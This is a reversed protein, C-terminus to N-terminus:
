RSGFIGDNYCLIILLSLVIIIFHNTVTKIGSKRTKMGTESVKVRGIRLKRIMVVNNYLSVFNAFQRVFFFFRFDIIKTIIFRLLSKYPLPTKKTQYQIAFLLDDPLKENSYYKKAHHIHMNVCYSYITDFVNNQGDYKSLNRFYNLNQLIYANYEAQMSALDDNEFLHKQCICDIQQCYYQTMLDYKDQFYRYFTARSTGCNQVIDNVSFFHSLPSIFSVNSCYM